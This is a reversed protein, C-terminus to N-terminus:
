HNQDIKTYMKSLRVQNTRTYTLCLVGWFRWKTMGQMSGGLIAMRSEMQKKDLEAMVDEFPRAEPAKQEEDAQPRQDVVKAFLWPMM